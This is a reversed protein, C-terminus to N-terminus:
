TLTRLKIRLPAGSAADRLIEELATFFGPDAILDGGKSRLADDDTRELSRAKLKRPDIFDRAQRDMRLFMGVTGDEASYRKSARGFGPQGVVVGWGM